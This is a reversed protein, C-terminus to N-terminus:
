AGHIEQQLLLLITLVLTSNAFNDFL